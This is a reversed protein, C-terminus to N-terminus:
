VNAKGGIMAIKLLLYSNLRKQEEKEKLLEANDAMLKANLIDQASPKKTLKNEEQWAQIEKDTASEIWETGNWKPKIYNKNYLDVIQYSEEIKFYQPKNNNFLVCKEVIYGNNDIITKYYM